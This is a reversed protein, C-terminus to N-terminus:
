MIMAALLVFGGISALPPIVGSTSDSAPVRSPVPPDGEPKKSPWPWLTSESVVPSLNPEGAPDCNDVSHDKSPSGGPVGPIDEGSYSDPHPSQCDSSYNPANSSPTTNPFQQNPTSFAKPEPASGSPTLPGQPGQPDQPDQSPTSLGTNVQTTCPSEPPTQTVPSGSTPKETAAPSGSAPNLLSTPVEPAPGEPTIRQSSQLPEGVSSADTSSCSTEAAAASSQLSTPDGYTPGQSPTARAYINAIVPTKEPCISGCMGLTSDGM